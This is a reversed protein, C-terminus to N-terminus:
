SVTGGPFTRPAPFTGLPCESIIAGGGSLISEALSKNEKPYIVDIGTGWVAVTRGSAALAGRHACTDVGRAMGSVIVLRRGALDRALMEGMGSGYPTPHRTGVVAISPRSLLNADGRLWLVPPPDFIERLQEPYAEDSYVLVSGGQESVRALEEEAQGRARGDFLFQVAAAPFNLSELETLSLQFIRAVEGLTQFALLIRRPGLEPTLALALWALRSEAVAQQPEGLATPSPKSSPSAKM